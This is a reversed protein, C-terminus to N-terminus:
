EHSNSSYGETEMRNQLYGKMQDDVPFVPYHNGTVEITVNCQSAIVSTNAIASDIIEKPIYETRAYIDEECMLFFDDTPYYDNEGKNLNVWFKHFPADTQSPYHSDSTIVLPIKLEKSYGIIKENYTRQDDMTNAQIELYFNEGFIEHFEKAWYEGNDTNLISGMCASLIILGSKHERLIGIDIRPKYFSNEYALTDLQLLNHYGINNKALVILHHTQKRDKIGVNSCFYFENGIIPKIHQRQCEKYFPLVSSLTGHENISVATQNLSVVRTVIDPIKSFGDFISFHSHNHLSVYSM